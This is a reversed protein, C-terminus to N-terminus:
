APLEFRKGKLVKTFYIYFFDAYLGSQVIGAVWAIYDYHDEFYWRYIWNVIYLTRYAGLAFVYHTTITEAEGTRQMMMLQPLIAVAELYISFAWTIEMFSFEYNFILALLLATGIIYEIKFTDIQPGRSGKFKVQILYLIYFSSGIFFIKM